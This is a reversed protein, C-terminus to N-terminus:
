RTLQLPMKTYIFSSNTGSGTTATPDDVVVPQVVVQINSGHGTASVITVGAFGVITYTTNGGNGSYASFLPVERTQGVINALDTVLDSKLGPGGQLTAPQSPTAQLGNAGFYSLDSSSPGNTIWNAFTPTDTASPGIDVLGFNGPSTNNPYTNDFEPIGDGGATVNGPAPTSTTPLTMTYSDHTAGDPSYGTSLFSSWFSADVAIPLLKANQGNSKFGTVNSTLSFAATATATCNWTSIGLVRAFFLNVPTNASTDRRLTVQFVNPLPNGTTWASLTQSQNTPTAMYGAVVDGSLLSLYTNGAKNL